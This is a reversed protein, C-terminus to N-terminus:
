LEQVRDPLENRQDPRAPFHPALVAACGEIAGVLAEAFRGQRAGAVFRNTVEGWAADTVHAAVARDAIIEVYREAVSVFLLVGGHDETRGSVRTAFQLRAAEGAAARKVPGPVLVTHIAPVHLALGFLVAAAGEVALWTRATLGPDVVAAAVGAALAAVATWLLPYLRYDSAAPAVVVAFEASTRREAAVIAHEVASRETDTLRAPAM